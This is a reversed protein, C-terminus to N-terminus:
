PVAIGGDVRLASGTIFSADDSVLFRVATAVERPQGFRRLLIGDTLARLDEPSERLSRNMETEIPGPLVENVRIGHPALEIAAIHALAHQAAKSIAYASTGPRPRAWGRSTVVVISGGNGQEVMRRGAEQVLLFSSRANISQLRDYTQRSTSLLPVSEWVAANVVMIDLRGFRAIVQDVINRPGDEEALDVRIGLVGVGFASITDVLEAAGTENDRYCFAVDSGVRAFEEAIAAGIGGTGGTVVAIKGALQGATTM